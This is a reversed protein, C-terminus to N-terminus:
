WSSGLATCLVIIITTSICTGCSLKMIIPVTPKSLTRWGAWTKWKSKQCLDIACLVSHGFHSKKNQQIVLRVLLQGFHDTFDSKKKLFAQQKRVEPIQFYFFYKLLLCPFEVATATYLEMYVKISYRCILSIMGRFILSIMGVFRTRTRCFGNQCSQKPSPQSSIHLKSHLCHEIPINLINVLQFLVDLGHGMTWPWRFYIKHIFHFSFIHFIVLIQMYSNPIKLIFYIQSVRRKVNWMECYTFM